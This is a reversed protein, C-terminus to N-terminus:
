LRIVYPHVGGRRLTVEIYMVYLTRQFHLTTLTTLVPGLENGRGFPSTSLTRKGHDAKTEIDTNEFCALSALFSQTDASRKANRVSPPTCELGPPSCSYRLVCTLLAHPSWHGGSTTALLLCILLSTACRYVLRILLQRGLDEMARWSM